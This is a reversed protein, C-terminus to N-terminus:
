NFEPDAFEPSYEHLHRRFAKGEDDIITLLTVDALASADDLSALFSHIAGCFADNVVAEFDELQGSERLTQGLRMWPEPDQGSMLSGDDKSLAELSANLWYDRIAALETLFATETHRLDTM